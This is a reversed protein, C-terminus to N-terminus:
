AVFEGLERVTLGDRIERLRKRAIETDLFRPRLPPPVLVRREALEAVLPEDELAIKGVFLRELAGGRALHEFLRVLGRLYIADKTMGGARYARMTTSFASRPGAGVEILKDFTARFSAHQGRMYAAIVRHGLTHLRSIRIGGALHEALIGLAEQNEDYGALGMGLMHIPQAWGNAYTLVHVGVEHHLLNDVHDVAVRTDSGVRLNGEEVLVGPIRDSVTVEASLPPHVSRYQAIEHRARDAFQEASITRAHPEEPGLALLDLALELMPKEVHGFLDVAALFFDPTGRSRFLDLRIRLERQLAEAMHRIVGDEAQEPDVADLRDSIATLEPLERYTFVPEDGNMFAARADSVNTPTVYRLFPLLRSIEALERDIGSDQDSLTV